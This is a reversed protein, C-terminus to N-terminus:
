VRRVEKMAERYCEEMQEARIRRLEERTDEHSLEEILVGFEKLSMEPYESITVDIFDKLAGIFPHAKRYRETMSGGGEEDSREYMGRM